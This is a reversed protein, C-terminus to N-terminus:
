RGCRWCAGRRKKAVAVLAALAGEVDIAVLGALLEIAHDAPDRTAANAELRAVIERALERENPSLSPAGRVLLRLADVLRPMMPGGTRAFCQPPEGDDCEGAPWANRQPELLRTAYRTVLERLPPEIISADGRAALDTVVGEVAEFWEEAPADEGAHALLRAAWQQLLEPTGCLVRGLGPGLRLAGTAPNSQTGEDVLRRTRECRPLRLPAAFDGCTDTLAALAPLRADEDDGLVLALLAGRDMCEDLPGVPASPRAAVAARVCLLGGVVGWPSLGLRRAVAELDIPVEPNGDRVLVADALACSPTPREEHKQLLFDIAAREASSLVADLGFPDTWAISSRVDTALRAAAERDTTALLAIVSGDVSCLNETDLGAAAVHRRAAPALQWAREFLWDGLPRREGRREAHGERELAISLLVPAEELAGLVRERADPPDNAGEADLVSAITAFVHRAACALPPAAAVAQHLAGVLRGADRAGGPHLALLVAECPFVVDPHRAPVHGGLCETFAGARELAAALRAVADEASLDWVAALDPRQADIAEVWRAHPVTSALSDAADPLGRTAVFASVALPGHVADMTPNPPCYGVRLSAEHWLRPRDDDSVVSLLRGVLRRLPVTDADRAVNATDTLVLQLLEIPRDSGVFTTTMALAM